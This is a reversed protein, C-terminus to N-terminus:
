ADPDIEKGNIGVLGEESLEQPVGLNFQFARKEFWEWAKESTSFVVDEQGVDWECWVEYVKAM